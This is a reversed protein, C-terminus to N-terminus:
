RETTGSLEVALESLDPKQRPQSATEKSLGPNIGSGAGAKAHPFQGQRPTDDSHVLQNASYFSIPLLRANLKSNVAAM